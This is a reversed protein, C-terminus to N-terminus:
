PEALGLHGLIPRRFKKCKTCVRKGGGCMRLAESEGIDKQLDMSPWMM